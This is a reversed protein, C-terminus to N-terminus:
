FQFSLATLITIVINAAMHAAIPAKITHFREMVWGLYIGCFAAYVGQVLNGHFIGFFVASWLIALWPKMLDRLREFVLGRILLEEAIPAILGTCFLKLWLSGSNLVESTQAYSGSLNQLDLLSVLKNGALAVIVGGLMVLLLTGAGLRPHEGRQELNRTRTSREEMDKRYIWGFVLIALIGSISLRLLPEDPFLGIYLVLGQIVQYLPMPYIARWLNYVSLKTRDDNM